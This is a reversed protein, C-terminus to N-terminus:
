YCNWGVGEAQWGAKVLQNKESEHQTYHHSGAAANPNYLRLIQTPGASKFAVGETQWGVRILSDREIVSKTYHHDGTNPNYLRYVDEGTAATKGISGEDHWGAKILSTKEGDDLTYFHEGSHPNYLRHLPVTATNDLTIVKSAGRANTFDVTFTQTAADYTVGESMNVVGKFDHPVKVHVLSNKQTPDSLTYQIQDNKNQKMLALPGDTSIGAIKGGTPQWFNVGLYHEAKLEVAQIDATNKLITIPKKAAYDKLSAEDAGPLMAYAYTAQQPHQGHDILFKAYNEKFTEGGVYSDNIEGYNGSRQEKVVNVTEKTPFYYGISAQKQGAQLLLWEKQSQETETTIAGQDSLIHYTDRNNLLRNDVVTEITAETDGTIGAGLAVVQGDVMFWSKKAKLNMPLEKDNNKTGAKNLAMGVVAQQNNAVGGVWSEKSTITKFASIEDELPVTDVTTGPLRYPDVTPWYTKNFQVEDDNYLYLMGDGTHWGHKNEKNGAEFSSIRESYLSLGVMYDATRQVFRDMAAYMKTGVFPLQDGKISEDSLLALTMLLDNYNRTNTLYYDRNEQMWYKVAEKLKIQKEKPAFKAVILLNYLTTSGYGTKTKAPPRSISRGNVGPLMEGRYILPIFAREVNEVFANVKETALAYPSDNTIALIKGVGSVLVNGYAGTYPIDGHQIFSGDQYFGDGKEVLSFVDVISDSAQQIKEGDAQLIGLGLVVQALDTRNAGTTVFNPIFDLEVYNDQPKTYMQKFPDPVYGSIVTTYRQRQEVTLQDNIVMLTNVFKQPVGIQWDWWNGQYKKGDYGHALMFDIGDTIATLIEPKQYSTTGQMGYALALQQLGAFQSTFYSSVTETPKRPWLGTRDPSKDMTQYLEAADKSLTEVYNVVVPETQDYTESILEQQWKQQLEHFVAPNETTATLMEGSSQAVAPSSMGGLGLLLLCTGMAICLSRNKDM